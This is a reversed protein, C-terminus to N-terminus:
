STSKKFVYNIKNYNASEEYFKNVEDRQIKSSLAVCSLSNAQAWKEIHSLLMKAYGKGRNEKDTVLDYVWAFNGSSLSFQKAFGAYSMISDGEFLCVIKYGESIMYKAQEVYDELSLHTRLQCIVPYAKALEDTELERIKLEENIAM